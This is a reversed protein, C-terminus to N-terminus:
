GAILAAGLSDVLRDEPHVEAAGVRPARPMAITTPGLSTTLTRSRKGSVYLFLASSTPPQGMLDNLMVTSDGIRVEAHMIADDPMAMSFAEEADFGAKLFDILKGAGKVSLSPTVTHYGQPIAKVAMAREKVCLNPIVVADKSLPAGRLLLGDTRSM